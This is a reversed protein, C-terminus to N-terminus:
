ASVGNGYGIFAIRTQNYQIKSEDAYYLEFTIDPVYCYQQAYDDLEPVYLRVLCKKEVDNTYRDRIGALFESMELNSMLPPTEFEVKYLFNDLANRELDGYQNRGSDIDQASRLVSYTEARIWKLPIVYPEQGATKPLITILNGQYAM